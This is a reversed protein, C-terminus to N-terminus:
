HIEQQQCLEKVERKLNNIETQLDQIKTSKALNNSKCKKKILWSPVSNEPLNNSQSEIEVDQPQLSPM